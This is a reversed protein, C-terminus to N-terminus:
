RDYRVHKKLNAGSLTITKGNMYQIKVSSLYFSDAIRSYFPINDFTYAAKCEEYKADFDDVSNPRPGIPGVGQGSWVTSGNIENRCKDGVTNKFYGNFTIYKITQLSCNTVSINVTIKGVSNSTWAGVSIIVPSFEKYLNILEVESDNLQKTLKIREIAKLSDVVTSQKKLVDGVDSDDTSPLFDFSIDSSNEFLYNPDASSVFIDVGKKSYLAYNYEYKINSFGVITITDGINFPCKKYKNSTLDTHSLIGKINGRIAQSKYQNKKELILKQKESLVRQVDTDDITPLYYNSLKIDFLGSSGSAHFIGALNENYLAYDESKANYGIVHVKESYKLEGITGPVPTFLSNSIVTACIEGSLAKIRDEIRKRREVEIKKEAILTSMNDGLANPLKKLQKETIDFPVNKSRIRGAYNHTEIVYYNWDSKKKYGYITVSDGINLSFDKKNLDYDTSYSLPITVKTKIGQADVISTSFLLLFILLIKM